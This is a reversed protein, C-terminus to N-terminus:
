IVPSVRLEDWHPHPAARFVRIETGYSGVIEPSDPPSIVARTPINLNRALTGSLCSPGKWPLSRSGSPMKAVNSSRFHRCTGKRRSQWFKVAAGFTRTNNVCLWDIIM